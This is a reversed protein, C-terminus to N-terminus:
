EVDGGEDPSIIDFVSRCCDRGWLGVRDQEAGAIARDGGCFHHGIRLSRRPCVEIRVAKRELIELARHVASDTMARRRLVKCEAAFTEVPILDAGGEANPVLVVEKPEGLAAYWEEPLRLRRFTGVEGEFQGNLECNECKM